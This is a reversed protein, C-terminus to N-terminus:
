KTLTTEYAIAKAVIVCVLESRMDEFWHYIYEINKTRSLNFM